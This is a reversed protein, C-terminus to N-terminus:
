RREDTRSVVCEEIPVSGLPELRVKPSPESLERVRIRPSPERREDIPRRLERPRPESEIPQLEHPKPRMAPLNSKMVCDTTPLRRDSALQELPVADRPVGAEDTSNAVGGVSADPPQPITDARPWRRQEELLETADPMEEVLSKSTSLGRKPAM